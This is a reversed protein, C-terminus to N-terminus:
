LMAQARKAIKLPTAMKFSIVAGVIVSVWIDKNEETSVDVSHQVM